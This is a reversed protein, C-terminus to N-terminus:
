AARARSRLACADDARGVLADHRRRGLEGRAPDRLAPQARVVLAADVDHPVRPSDPPLELIYHLRESAASMGLMGGLQRLRRPRSAIAPRCACTTTRRPARAAGARARSRRSLARLPAPQRQLTRAYTARYVDDIHNGLPPLGGTVFAERLGEPAISLYTVVCFGGFSQGLVSWREVGLARRMCEADRVISDARFHTLYAAQESPTLGPLTGVPTSRGTGRQDLMLVRFDQLARDLWGPSSPNRTPRPAEHGPGGQLFLLLPRDRGDLDAVERAFVTIREGMPHEHDLPVSFEHETLHVGPTLYPRCSGITWRDAILRRGRRRAAGSPAAAARPQPRPDARHQRDAHRADRQDAPLRAGARLRAADDAPAPSRAAIALARTLVDQRESALLMAEPSRAHDEGPFDPEDTLRERVHRQLLRLASAGSRRRVALRRDGRARARRGIHEYLKVWTAQVADDVDHPSLRYSRAVSRLMRDFREVLQTWALNDGTQAAGVLEALETNLPTHSSPM